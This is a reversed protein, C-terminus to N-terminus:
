DQKIWNDKKMDTYDFGRRVDWLHDELTKQIQMQRPVTPQGKHLEAVIVALKDVYPQLERSKKDKLLEQMQKLNYLARDASAVVKKHNKGVNEILEGQWSRWYIFHNSYRINAPYMQKTETFIKEPEEKEKPKRTFKRKLTACGILGL